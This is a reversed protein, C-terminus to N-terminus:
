VWYGPRRGAIVCLSSSGDVGACKGISWERVVQAIDGAVDALAVQLLQEALRDLCGVDGVLIPHWELNEIAHRVIRTGEPANGVGVLHNAILWLIIRLLAERLINRPHEARASRGASTEDGAAACARRRSSIM